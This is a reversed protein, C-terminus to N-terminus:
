QSQSDSWILYEEYFEWAKQLLHYPNIEAMECNDQVIVLTFEEPFLNSNEFTFKKQVLKRNIAVTIDEEPIVEILSLSTPCYIWARHDLNNNAKIPQECLLFKPIELEEARM